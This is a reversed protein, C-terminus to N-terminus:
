GAALAEEAAALEDEPNLMRSLMDLDDSSYRSRVDAWWNEAALRLLEEAEAHRGIRNLVLCCYGATETGGPPGQPPRLALDHSGCADHDGGEAAIRKWHDRRVPEGLDDYLWRLDAAAATDGALAAAEYRHAM